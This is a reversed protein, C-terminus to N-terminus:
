STERQARRRKKEESSGTCKNSKQSNVKEDRNRCSEWSGIRFVLENTEKEREWYGRAERYDREKWGGTSYRERRRLKDRVQGDAEPDDWGRQRKRGPAREWIRREKKPDRGRIKKDHRQDSDYFENHIKGNDTEDNKFGNSYISPRKGNGNVIAPRSVSHQDQVLAQQASSCSNQLPNRSPNTITHTPLDSNGNKINDVTRDVGGFFCTVHCGGHSHSEPEPISTITAPEFDVFYDDCSVDECADLWYSPRGDAAHTCASVSDRGEGKDM